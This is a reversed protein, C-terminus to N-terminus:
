FIRRGGVHLDGPVAGNRIAHAYRPAEDASPIGLAKLVDANTVERVARLQNALQAINPWLRNVMPLVTELAAMPNQGKAYSLQRLTNFDHSSAQLLRWVDTVTPKGKVWIAEGATGAASSSPSSPKATAGALSASFSAIRSMSGSLM